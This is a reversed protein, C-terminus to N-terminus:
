GKLLRKEGRGELLTRDLQVIRRQNNIVNVAVYLDGEKSIVENEAIIGRARLEEQLNKDLYM